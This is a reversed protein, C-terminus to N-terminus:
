EFSSFPNTVNQYDVNAVLHQNLAFKMNINPASSSLLESQYYKQESEYRKM